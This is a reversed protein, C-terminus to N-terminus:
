VYIIILNQWFNYYNMKKTKNEMTELVSLIHVTLSCVQTSQYNTFIHMNCFTGPSGPSTNKCCLIECYIKRSKFKMIKVLVFSYQICTSFKKRSAFIHIRTFFLLEATCNTYAFLGWWTFVYQLHENRLVCELRVVSRDEVYQQLQYYLSLTLGHYYWDIFWVQILMWWFLIQRQMSHWALLIEGPGVIRSLTMRLLFRLESYQHCM